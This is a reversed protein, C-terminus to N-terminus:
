IKEKYECKPFNSCGYFQGYKGNRLKMPAKCIACYKTNPDFTRWNYGEIIDSKNANCRKCLTQLNNFTTKGGKSIPMIHDVELNATSGCKVCRYGDREYVAFRMKNSVKAREVRSVSEWIQRNNFRGNTRDNVKDILEEVQIITFHNKKSTRYQGNINTLIIEVIVKLDTIPKKVNKRFVDKEVSRLYEKFRLKVPADFENKITLQNVDAKYMDYSCSNEIVDHIVKKIDKQIFQLQYTLYDIPAITNYFDENDYEKRYIQPPINHFHYKSNINRLSKILISHKNVFEEYIGRIVFFAIIAALILFFLIILFPM